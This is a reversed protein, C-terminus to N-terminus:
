DVNAKQLTNEHCTVVIRILDYSIEGGFHEYIPKLRGDDSLHLQSTIRSRISEDVWASSDTIKDHRLYDNLYGM